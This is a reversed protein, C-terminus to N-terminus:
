SFFLSVKVTRDDSGSVVIDKATFATSRVTSYVDFLVFFSLMYTITLITLLKSTYYSFELLQQFRSKVRVRANGNSKSVTWLWACSAFKRNKGLSPPPPYVQFYIEWGRASMIHTCIRWLPFLVSCMHAGFVRPPPPLSYAVKFDILSLCRGEESSAAWWSYVFMSCSLSDIRTLRYSNYSHRVRFTGSVCQSLTHVTNQLGVSPLNHWHLVHCYTAPLPPYLHTDTGPWARCLLVFRVYAITVSRSNTSKWVIAIGISRKWDRPWCSQLNSPIFYLKLMYFSNLEWLIKKTCLCPRRSTMHFRDIRGISCSRYMLIWVQNRRKPLLGRLWNHIYICRFQDFIFLSFNWAFTKKTKSGVDLKM